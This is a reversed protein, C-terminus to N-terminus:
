CGRLMVVPSQTSVCAFACVANVLFPSCFPGDEGARMNELFLDDEIYRWYPNLHNLFVSVLRSVFGDDLTLDVWPAAPVSVTPIDLMTDDEGSSFPRELNEVKGGAVALQLTEADVIRNRLIGLNPYPDSINVNDINGFNLSLMKSLTATSQALAISVSQGPDPKSAPPAPNERLMALLTDIDSGARMHHLIIRSERESRSVLNRLLEKLADYSM